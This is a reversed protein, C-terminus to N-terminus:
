KVTEIVRTKGIFDHIMKSERTIFLMVISVITVISALITLISYLSASTLLTVIQRFYESTCVIGGEILMVGIIERTCLNKMSIDSGDDNVIKVGVLRKGLTQGRRWYMPLAIYYILGFTIALIGAILGWKVSMSALSQAIEAKGSEISYIFLIPIGAITSALYWDIMMAFLRRIYLTGNDKDDKDKRRFFM